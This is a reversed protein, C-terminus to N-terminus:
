RDGLVHVDVLFSRSAVVKAPKRGRTMVRGSRSRSVAGIARVVVVTAAGAVVGGAAALAATAVEGRVADLEGGRKRVPLRRVTAAEADGADPAEEEIVQADLVEEAM